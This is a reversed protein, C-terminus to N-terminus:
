QRQAIAPGVYGPRGPRPGGEGVTGQLGRIEQILQPFDYGDRSSIERANTDDVSAEVPFPKGGAAVSEMGQATGAHWFAFHSLVDRVGWQDVRVQSAAGPGEFYGLGDEVAKEIAAILNEVEPANAM